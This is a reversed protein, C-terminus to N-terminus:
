LIDFEVRRNLARGRRTLNPAIPKTDGYGVAEIKDAPIGAKELYEMVAAARAQSLVLNKEKSGVNDTHGEVRLKQVHHQIIADVVQDLLADSDPLIRAENNAFHIQQKLRIKDHSIVILTRRPQPSLVIEVSPARGAVAEVSAAKALFGRASAALAYTGPNPLTVEVSGSAPAEVSTSFGKPGSVTVAAAVPKGKVSRVSVHLRVPRRSAKLAVTVRAVRGQQVVAHASGPDYGDRTVTLDVPGDPLGYTAFRGEVASTAVPPLSSGAIEVIAGGIAQGTTADSVAGEVTGPTVQVAVKKEVTKTVEVTRVAPKATPDWNYSVGIFLQWIPLIPVGMAVQSQFAVDLAALFSVDPLATVRAGIDFDNPLASLYSVPDGHPNNLPDSGTFPALMEYEVFPTVYPLPAEVGIGARFQDYPTYGYVFQEAARLTVPQGATNTTTLNGMSDVFLGVDLHLKLPIGQPLFSYTFLGTPAFAVAGEGEAGVASYGYLRLDGGASLGRAVPWAGQAGLWWDGLGSQFGPSTAGDGSTYNSFIRTGGYVNLWDLPTYSLNLIGVARYDHTNAVPFSIGAWDSNFYQGYIAMRMVDKQGVDAAEVHYLGVAGLSGATHRVTAPDGVHAGASGPTKGEEPAVTEQAASGAPAAPAAQAPPSWPAPAASPPPVAPPAAPPAVPAIVPPPATNFGSWDGSSQATAPAAFLGLAAPLLLVAPFTESRTLRM